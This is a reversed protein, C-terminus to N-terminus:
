KACNTTKDRQTNAMTHSPYTPQKALGGIDQCQGHVADLCDSATLAHGHQECGDPRAKGPDGIMNRFILADGCRAHDSKQQIEQKLKGEQTNRVSLYCSRGSTGTCPQSM